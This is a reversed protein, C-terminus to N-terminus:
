DLLYSTLGDALKPEFWTSKPPMVEGSDAVAMLQQLTTPYMSFAVIMEGSDVRKELEGLGRIGGVFDIRPDRRPDYIDLIPSLLHDALISVDLGAVPDDPRMHELAARLRYWQGGLYMGFCGEGQPRVAEESKEVNFGAKEIQQLFQEPTLGNLDTVVRNYDLIHLQNDPFMAALCYNYSEDGTHHPNAARRLHMVRSAAASRHHGDAIYLAGLREFEDNVIAIMETDSVVWMMHRVHTFETTVDMDPENTTVKELVADLVPTHKYTLFVPSPQANLEDIQHVRDDEKAPRTFEHKKIRGADYAECSVVAMFGTQTHEGMILRYVYYAPVSDQILDGQEIMRHFNKAGRQYVKDAHPDVDDALEIEPRSVRLFSWANDGAIAKAEERSVVDYPPAVMDKVRHPAPRLAAFPKVIPM